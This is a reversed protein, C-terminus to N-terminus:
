KVGGQREASQAVTAEAGTVLLRAALADDEKSRYNGISNLDCVVDPDELMATMIRALLEAWRKQGAEERILDQRIEVIASALGRMMAHRWLTDGKLQGSYPENDGVVLDSQAQLAELLRLALRPDRDWLVGAHWHRERGRWNDTFSHISLIVPPVGSAIAADVTRDIAAHYPNYFRSLRAQRQGDDVLRNGVIIAGDSLKMILTPDDAGRNPDILLRSFRSIVAPADLLKALHRAVGAAGIDLAIHRELEQHPLGLGDYESPITNSAHDCLVIVGGDARGAVTEFAECIEGAVSRRESDSITM